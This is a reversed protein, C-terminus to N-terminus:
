PFRERLEKDIHIFYAPQVITSVEEGVKMSEIIQRVTQPIKERDNVRAKEGKLEMMVM